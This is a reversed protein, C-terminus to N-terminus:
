GRPPAARLGPGATASPGTARRRLWEHVVFIPIVGVPYWAVDAWDFQVGLTLRAATSRASLEAPVGTLQFLEMSWCFAIAIAGARLPSMRPWLLFVGAYIMSAYLATGSYQELGGDSVARIGFATGLVLVVAGFAVLRSLVM